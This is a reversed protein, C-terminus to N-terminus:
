CEHFLSSVQELYPALRKTEAKDDKNMEEEKEKKDGKSSSGTSTPSGAERRWSGGNTTTTTTTTTTTKEASQRERGWSSSSYSPNSVGNIETKHSKLEKKANENTEPASDKKTVASSTFCTSSSSKQIFGNSDSRGYKKVGVGNDRKASNNASSSSSPATIADGVGNSVGNLSERNHALTNTPSSTYNDGAGRNNNQAPTSKAINNKNRTFSSSASSSLRQNDDHAASANNNAINNSNNNANNTAARPPSQVGDEKMRRLSEM